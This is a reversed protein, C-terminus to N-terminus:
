SRALLTQVLPTHFVGDGILAVREDDVEVWRRRELASWVGAHETVVDVGFLRRYEGRDVAMAHLMQFLVNLRLDRERYRYGREAPFRGEDLCAYYSDVRTHNLYTWGPRDPAGPFNSVGAFGWGWMEVGATEGAGPSRLPRHWSEEFRYGAPLEGEIKEWDYATRQRYGAGTLLERAARYMELNEERSPLEDRHDLAFASRGSVNLEYHTLHPIGTAVIARLDELMQDVSQRPWGFILDVSAPLDLEHCWAIAHFVQDARQRRGSLAIMDDSLQQAGISIRNVGAAKMAALKDRTFLQPIGELTVEAAPPIPGLVGRVLGLLREYRDAPYLNATGGGFYVGDLADGDFRGRYLRGELELYGLYRDLQARNRFVESPFLCFGCRDPRTPLCFPTSVYLILRKPVAAATRRRLAMVESVPVPRQRWLLPPPYGHLVKNGQRRRQHEELYADIEEVRREDVGVPRGSEM